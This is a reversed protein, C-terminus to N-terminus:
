RRTSATIAHSSSYSPLPRQGLAAAGMQLEILDLSLRRAETLTPPHNVGPTQPLYERDM